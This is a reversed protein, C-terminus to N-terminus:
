KPIFFVTNHPEKARNHISFLMAAYAFEPEPFCGESLRKCTRFLLWSLKNSTRFLRSALTSPFILMKSTFVGAQSTSFHRWMGAQCGAAPSEIGAGNYSSIASRFRSKPLSESVLASNNRTNRGPRSHNCYRSGCRRTSGWGTKGTRDAFTRLCAPLIGVGPNRNSSTLSVSTTLRETSGTNSRPSRISAIM